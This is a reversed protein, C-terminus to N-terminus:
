SNPEFEAEIIHDEKLSDILKGAFSKIQEETDAKIEISKKNIEIKKTDSFYEPLRNSLLFKLLQDNRKSHKKKRKEGVPIDVISTTGDTNYKTVKKISVDVEEYDYGM